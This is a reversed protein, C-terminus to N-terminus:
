FRGCSPATEELKNIKRPQDKELAVVWLEAYGGSFPREPTKGV